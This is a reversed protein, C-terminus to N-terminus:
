VFADVLKEQFIDTVDGLQVGRHNEEQGVQKSSRVVVSAGVHYFQMLMHRNFGHVVMDSPFVHLACKQNM